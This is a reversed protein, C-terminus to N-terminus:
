RRALAQVAPQVGEPQAEVAATPTPAAPSEPRPKLIVAEYTIIGVYESGLCRAAARSLDLSRRGIYPGRDNIRVVISRGNELNTVRLYTDFPLSPHAATMENENFIEGSATKRGHFRPGYWSAIGSLTQNTPELQYMQSQAASLSLPAVELAMRLANVWEIALVSPNQEFSQAIAEDLRLMTTEGAMITPVDDVLVPKLTEPDFDPSHIVSEIQTALADAQSQTLGNIVPYENVLVQYINPSSDNGETAEASASDPSRLWGCQQMARTAESFPRDGPQEQETGRTVTIQPLIAQLRRSIRSSWQVLQSLMPQPSRVEPTAQAQVIVSVLRSVPRSVQDRLSALLSSELTSTRTSRAITHVISPTEPSFATVYSDANRLISQSSFFNGILSALWIFGLVNM